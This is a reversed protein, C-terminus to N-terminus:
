TRNQFTHFGAIVLVFVNGALVAMGLASFAEAIPLFVCSMVAAGILAALLLGTM